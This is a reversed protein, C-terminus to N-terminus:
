RYAEAVTFTLGTPSNAETPQWSGPIVKLRMPPNLFSVTAAPAILGIPLRTTVTITESIASAVVLDTAIKRHVIMDGQVISFRDGAGLELGVPLGQIELTFLDTVEDVVAGGGWPLTGIEYAGPVRYWPHVFDVSLNWETVRDLFALWVRQENKELLGTNVPGGWFSDRHRSFINVGGEDRAWAIGSNPAVGVTGFFGTNPFTEAM